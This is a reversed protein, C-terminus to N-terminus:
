LEDEIAKAKKWDRIKDHAIFCENIILGYAGKEANEQFQGEQGGWKGDGGNYKNNKNFYEDTKYRYIKYHEKTIAFCYGGLINGSNTCPMKTFGNRPGDSVRPGGGLMGNTLGGFVINDSDNHNFINEILKNITTDFWLDDNCNILIDCDDRYAKNLGLNWAGTLGDEYQDEIRFYKIRTDLPFMLSHQSQNDIIYIIFETSCHDLISNLIRDLLIQGNPRIHDSYHSTIIFGIKMNNQKGINM